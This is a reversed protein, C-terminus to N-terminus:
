RWICFLCSLITSDVCLVDKKEVECLSVLGCGYPVPSLMGTLPYVGGGWGLEWSLTGYSVRINFRRGSTQLESARKHTLSKFRRQRTIIQGLRPLVTMVYKHNISQVRLIDLNPTSTHIRTIDNYDMLLWTASPLSHEHEALPALSFNTAPSIINATM